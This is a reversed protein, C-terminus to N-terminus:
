SPMNSSRNGSKMMALLWAIWLAIAWYVQYEFFAFFFIPFPPAGALLPVRAPLDLGHWAIAHEAISELGGFLCFWVLPHGPLRCALWHFSFALVSFIIVAVPLLAWQMWAPYFFRYYGAWATRTLLFAFGLWFVAAGIM